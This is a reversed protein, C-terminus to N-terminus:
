HTNAKKQLIALRKKRAREIKEEWQILLESKKDEQEKTPNTEKARKAIHKIHEDRKNAAERGRKEFVTFLQNRAELEQEKRDSLQSSILSHKRNLRQSRQSLL